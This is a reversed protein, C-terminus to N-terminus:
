LSFFDSPFNSEDSPTNGVEQPQSLLLLLFTRRCCFGFRVEQLGRRRGEVGIAEVGRIRCVLKVKDGRM